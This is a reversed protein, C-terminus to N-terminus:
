DRAGPEPLVFNITGTGASAQVEARLSEAADSRLATHLARDFGRRRIAQDLCSGSGACLWAGRGPATRDLRLSGDARHVVRVLEEAPAM